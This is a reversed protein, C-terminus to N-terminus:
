DFHKGYDWPVESRDDEAEYNEFTEDEKLLPEGNDVLEFIGEIVELVAVTEGVTFSDIHKNGWYSGFNTLMNFKPEGDEVKISELELSVGSGEFEMDFFAFNTVLGEKIYPHINISEINREKILSLIQTRAKEKIESLSAALQESLKEM